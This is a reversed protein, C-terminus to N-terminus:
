FAHGLGNSPGHDTDAVYLRDRVELAYMAEQMSLSLPMVVQGSALAGTLEKGM